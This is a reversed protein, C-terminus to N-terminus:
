RVFAPMGLAVFTKCRSIDHNIGEQADFRVVGLIIYLNYM